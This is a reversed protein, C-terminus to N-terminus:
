HFIKKMDTCKYKNIRNRSTCWNKVNFTLVTDHSVTLIILFNFIMYICKLSWCTETKSSDDESLMQYKLFVLPISTHDTHQQITPQHDSSYQFAGLFINKGQSKRGNTKGCKKHGDSCKCTRRGFKWVYRTIVDCVLTEYECPPSKFASFFIPGVCCTVHRLEV